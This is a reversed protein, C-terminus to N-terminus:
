HEVCKEVSHDTGGKDEYEELYSIGFIRRFSSAPYREKFAQQGIRQLNRRKEQNFHVGEKADRHCKWCLHVTLGYKESLKRNPGGFIHHRELYGMSGCLFCWEAPNPEVISKKM